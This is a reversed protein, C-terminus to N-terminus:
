TPGCHSLRTLGGGAGRDREAPGDVSGLTERDQLLVVLQHLHLHFQLLLQLLQLGVRGPSVLM